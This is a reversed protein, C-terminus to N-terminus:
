YFVGEVVQHNLKFFELVISAQFKFPLRRSSLTFNHRRLVEERCLSHLGVLDVLDFHLLSRRYWRHRSNLVRQFLQSSPFQVVAVELWSVFVASRKVVLLVLILDCKSMLNTLVTSKHITILILITRKNLRSRVHRRSVIGDRFLLYANVLNLIYGTDSTFVLNINLQLVM